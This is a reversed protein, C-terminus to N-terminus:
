FHSTITQAGRFVQSSFSSNFIMSPSFTPIIYSLYLHLCSGHHSATGQLLSLKYRIRSHRVGQRLRASIWWITLRWVPPLPSTSECVKRCTHPLPCVFFFFFFFRGFFLPLTLSPSGCSTLWLSSSAAWMNTHTSLHTQTHTRHTDDSWVAHLSPLFLALPLSHLSRLWRIPQDVTVSCDWLVASLTLDCVCVWTHCATLFCDMACNAHRHKLTYVWTHTHTYMQSCM